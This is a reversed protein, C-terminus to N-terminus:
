PSESNPSEKFKEVLRMMRNGMYGDFARIYRNCTAADLTIVEGPKLAIWPCSRLLKRDVVSGRHVIVNRMQSLELMDKRIWDEIAGGLGCLNLLREFQEIGRASACGLHKQIEELMYRVREDEDLMMFEGISIKVRPITEKDLFKPDFKVWDVIFDEVTTEAISWLSVAVHAHLTPFGLSSEKEAKAAMSELREIDSTDVKVGLNAKAEDWKKAAEVFHPLRGIGHTCLELVDLLQHFRDNGRLWPALLAEPVRAM